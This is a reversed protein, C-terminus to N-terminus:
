KTKLKLWKLSDSREREFKIEKADYNTDTKQIEKDRKEVEKRWREYDEKLKRKMATVILEQRQEETELATLATQTIGFEKL